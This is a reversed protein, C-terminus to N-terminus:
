PVKLATPDATSLTLSVLKVVMIEWNGRKICQFKSLFMFNYAFLWGRHSPSLAYQRLYFKGSSTRLCLHSGPPNNPSSESVVGTLSHPVHAWVTNEADPTHQFKVSTIPHLGFLSTPAPRIPVCVKHTFTEVSDELLLPISSKIPFPPGSWFNPSNPTELNFPLSFDVWIDKAPLKVKKQLDATRVILGSGPLWRERNERDLM